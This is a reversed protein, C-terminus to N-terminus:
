STFQNGDKEAKNMAMTMLNEPTIKLAESINCLDILDALIIGEEIKNLKEITLGVREAFHAQTINRRLRESKVVQGFAIDIKNPIGENM